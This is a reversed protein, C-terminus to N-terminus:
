PFIASSVFHYLYSSDMGERPRLVHFETSGFGQGNILNRAVAMKGNEMCPTVKAFLVDGNRFATYGKKVEAYPRTTSVDIQGNAAGVSAMPVFSVLTDDSLLTRDLKPNIEAAERLPVRKVAIIVTADSM